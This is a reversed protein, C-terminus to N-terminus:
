GRKRKQESEDNQKQKLHEELAKTKSETEFQLKERLKTNEKKLNELQNKISEFERNKIAIENKLLEIPNKGQELLEDQATKKILKVLGLFLSNIDSDTLTRQKKFPIINNEIKKNQILKRKMNQYKNQFRTMLALDGDSLKLCASRVSMGQATMKDIEAFLDNEQIKDFCVFHSKDHKELNIELSKCRKSDNTLNDVEHYYYNRVSNPKRNFKKAHESFAFVLSNNEEKCKEVTSFLSKVENDNWNKM